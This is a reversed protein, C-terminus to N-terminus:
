SEDGKPYTHGVLCRVKYVYIAMCQTLVSGAPSRGGVSILFTSWRERNWSPPQFPPLFILNSRLIASDGSPSAANM